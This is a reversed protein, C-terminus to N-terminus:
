EKEALLANIIKRETRMIEGCYHNAEQQLLESKFRREDMPLEKRATVTAEYSRNLFRLRKVMAAVTTDGGPRTPDLTTEDETDFNMSLPRPLSNCGVGPM